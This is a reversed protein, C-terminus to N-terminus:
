ADRYLVAQDIAPPTTANWRAYPMLWDETDDRENADDSEWAAILPGLRSDQAIAM